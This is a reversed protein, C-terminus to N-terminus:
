VANKEIRNINISRPAEFALRANTAAQGHSSGCFVFVSPLIETRETDTVMHKLGGAEVTMLNDRVIETVTVVHSGVQIKSGEHIGLSLAM